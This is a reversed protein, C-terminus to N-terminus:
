EKIKKIIKSQVSRAKIRMTPKKSKQDPLKEVKYYTKRMVSIQAKLDEIEKFLKINRKHVKDMEDIAYFMKEICNSEISHIKEQLTYKEKNHEIITDQLDIIKNKLKGKTTGFGRFINPIKM